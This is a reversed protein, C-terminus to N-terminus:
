NSPIEKISFVISCIKEKIKTFEKEKMRFVLRLLRKSSITKMHLLLLNRSKGHYVIPYFYENLKETSSSPIVWALGDSWKKLILVPREYSENKGDVEQGINVGLSAWWIEGELFFFDEPFNLKEIAEKRTHWGKLDKVYKITM